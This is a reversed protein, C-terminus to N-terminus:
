ETEHQVRVQALQRTNYYHQQQQKSSALSSGVYRTGFTLTPQSLQRQEPVPIRYVGDVEPASQQQHALAFTGQDNMPTHTDSAPPLLDTLTSPAPLDGSGSTSRNAGDRITSQTANSNNSESPSKEADHVRSKAHRKLLRFILM